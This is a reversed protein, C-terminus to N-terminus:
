LGCCGRLACCNKGAKKGQLLPWIRADPTSLPKIRKNRVDRPFFRPSKTRKIRVNRVDRPFFRPSKTRKTRKIRVNRVGRPFFRLPKTRKTRKIRVNRVDRPSSDWPSLESLECMEYMEPSLIEDPHCFPYLAGGKPSFSRDVNPETARRNAGPRGYEQGALHRWRARNDGNAYQPRVAGAACSPSKAIALYVM